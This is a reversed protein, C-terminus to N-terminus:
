RRKKGRQTMFGDDQPPTESRRLPQSSSSSVQTGRASSGGRGQSPGWGSGRPTPSSSNSRPPPTGRGRSSSITLGGRPPPTSRSIFGQMLKNRDDLSFENPDVTGHNFYIVQSDKPDTPNVVEMGKIMDMMFYGSYDPRKSADYKILYRNKNTKSVTVSSNTAKVMPEIYNMLAEPPFWPIVETSSILATPDYIVKAGNGMETPKFFIPHSVMRPTMPCWTRAGIIECGEKQMIQRSVELDNPDSDAFQKWRSSYSFKATQVRWNVFTRQQILSLSVFPRVTLLDVYNRLTLQTNRLPVDQDFAPEQYGRPSWQDPKPDTVWRPVFEASGFDYEPFREIVLHKALSRPIKTFKAVERHIDYGADPQYIKHTFPDNGMIIDWIHINSIFVYAQGKPQNTKHDWPIFIKHEVRYQDDSEIEQKYQNYVYLRVQCLTLWMVVLNEVQVRTLSYIDFFFHHRSVMKPDDVLITSKTGDANDIEKEYPKNKYYYHASQTSEHRRQITGGMGFMSQESSSAM